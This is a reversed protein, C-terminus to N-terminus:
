LQLPDNRKIQENIWCCENIYHTSVTRPVIRPAQFLMMSCFLCLKGAQLSIVHWCLHSSLPSPSVSWLLQSLVDMSYKIESFTIQLEPPPNCLPIPTATSFLATLTPEVSFDCKTSPTLLLINWPSPPVVEHLAEFTCASLCTWLAPHVAFQHRQALDTGSYSFFSHGM